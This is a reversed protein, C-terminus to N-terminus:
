PNQPPPFRQRFMADLYETRMELAHHRKYLETTGDFIQELRGGHEVNIREIVQQLRAQGTKLVDIQVQLRKEVAQLEQVIAIYHSNSERRAEMIEELVVQHLDQRVGQIEEHLDQHVGQIEKHLDQRVGQIEAHLDQRASEVHRGIVNEVLKGIKELDEDSLAM